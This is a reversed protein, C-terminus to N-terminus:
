VKRNNDEPVVWEDGHKKHFWEHFERVKWWEEVFVSFPEYDRLASAFAIAGYDKKIQALKDLKANIGHNSNIVKVVAKRIIENTM